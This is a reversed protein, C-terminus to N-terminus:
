QRRLNEGCIDFRSLIIYQKSGGDFQVVRLWQTTEHHSTTSIRFRKIDLFSLLPMFVWAFTTSLEVREKGRRTMKLCQLATIRGPKLDNL